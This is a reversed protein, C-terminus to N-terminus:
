FICSHFSNYIHLYSYHKYYQLPRELFLHHECHSLTEKNFSGWWVYLNFSSLSGSWLALEKLDACKQPFYKLKTHLETILGIFSDIQWLLTDKIDLWIKWKWRFYTVLCWYQIPHLLFIHLSNFHLADVIIPKTVNSLHEEGCDQLHLSASFVEIFGSWLSCIMCIELNRERYIRFINVLASLSPSPFNVM